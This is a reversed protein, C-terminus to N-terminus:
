KLFIFGFSCVSLRCTHTCRVLRVQVCNMMSFVHAIVSIFIYVTPKYTIFFATGDGTIHLISDQIYYSIKLICSLIKHQIKLHEKHLIKFYTQPSIAIHALCKEFISLRRSPLKM